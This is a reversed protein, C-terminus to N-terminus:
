SVNTVQLLRCPDSWTFSIVQPLRCPDSWTVEMVQPLRYPDSWTVEMVQPLRYPVSWTAEMVQPLRYPDSWTAEMVQPLRYSKICTVLKESLTWGKTNYNGFKAPISYSIEKSKLSISPPLNPFNLHNTLIEILSFNL